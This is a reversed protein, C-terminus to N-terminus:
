FHNCATVKTFIVSIPLFRVSLWARSLATTIFPLTPRASSAAAHPLHHFIVDELAENPPKERLGATKCLSGDARGSPADPLRPAVQRTECSSRPKLPRRRKLSMAVGFVRALDEVSLGKVLGSPLVHTTEECGAGAGGRRFAKRHIRYRSSALIASPFPAPFLLLPFIQSFPIIKVHCSPNPRGVLNGAPSVDHM